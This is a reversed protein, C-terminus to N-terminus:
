KQNARQDNETERRTGENTQEKSRQNQEYHIAGVIAHMVDDLTRGPALACDSFIDTDANKDIEPAICTLLLGKEDMVPFVRSRAPSGTPALEPAANSLPTSQSNKQTGVSSTTVTKAAGKACPFALCAAFTLLAIHIRMSMTLERNETRTQNV